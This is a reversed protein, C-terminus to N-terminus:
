RRSRTARAIMAETPFVRGFAHDGYLVSRFKQLALQQPQSLGVALNRALNTKLRPLEAEPFKPHQTVDALLAAFQPGFESMVDGGIATTDSAVSITLGGGM